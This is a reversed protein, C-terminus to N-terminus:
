THCYVDLVGGAKEIVGSMRCSCSEGGDPSLETKGGSM